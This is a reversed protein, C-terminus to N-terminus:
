NLVELFQIKHEPNTEEISKKMRSKRIYIVNMTTNLLHSITTADFGILMFCFISYDMEKFRPMENRLNAVINDMDENLVSELSRINGYDNRFDEVISSVREYIAHEANKKGDFLTYQEYLNGIVEFKSKYLEIYKRKLEPYDETRYAELQRRIEDAYNLYYEKEERQRRIYVSTGWLVLLLIMVSVVSISIVTLKRNNAKYESLESQSKYYDRQSLALSQKLADTVEINNATVSKELLTLAESYNGKSKEILYQWYYATTSTDVQSLQAVIDQSERQRGSNILAYAYAWYDKYSMYTNGYDELLTNYLLVSNHCDPVDRSAMIFAKCQIATAKIISDVRDSIILENLLSEAKPLDNINYYLKALGLNSIDRYYELSLESYVKYADKIYKLAELNNHTMSYTESQALYIFAMYLSDCREAVKEAKTFELIAKDYDQAYYYSLGLYYLARAEYKEPGKKSFYEVAVSAISDDTVDIFNKDLAMAHLLAHHARLRDSTLCSRDMSDLVALASDPREMIYSEVDYLKHQVDYADCSYLLIFGSVSIFIKLFLKNM